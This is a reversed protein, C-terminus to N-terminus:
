GVAGGRAGIKNACSLLYMFILDSQVTTPMTFPDRALHVPTPIRAFAFYNEQKFVETGARPGM